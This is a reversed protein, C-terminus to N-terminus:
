ELMSKERDYKLPIDKKLFNNKGKTTVGAMRHFQRWTLPGEVSLPTDKNGKGSSHLTSNLVPLLVKM